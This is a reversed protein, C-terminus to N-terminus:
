LVPHSLLVIHPSKDHTFLSKSLWSLSVLLGNVLKGFPSIHTGVGFIRFALFGWFFFMCLLRKISRQLRLKFFNDLCCSIVLSNRLSFLDSSRRTPFSLLPPYYRLF